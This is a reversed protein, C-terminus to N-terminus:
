VGRRIVFHCSYAVHFFFCHHLDCQWTLCTILCDVACICAGLLFVLEIGAMRKEPSSVTRMRRSSEAPQRAVELAIEGAHLHIALHPSRADAKLLLLSYRYSLFFEVKVM